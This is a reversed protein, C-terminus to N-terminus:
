MQTAVRLLMQEPRAQPQRGVCTRRGASRALGRRVGAAIILPVGGQGLICGTAALGDLRVETLVRLVVEPHHALLSLSLQAATMAAHVWLLCRISAGSDTRAQITIPAM